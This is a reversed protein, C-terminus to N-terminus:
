ILPIWHAPKSLKSPQKRPGQMLTCAAVFHMGFIYQGEVLSRAFRSVSFASQNNYDCAIGRPRAAPLSAPSCSGLQTARRGRKKANQM